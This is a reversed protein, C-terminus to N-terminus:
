DRAIRLPVAVRSGDVGVRGPERSERDILVLEFREAVREAGHLGVLAILDQHWATAASNFGEVAGPDRSALAAEVDPRAAIWQALRALEAGSADWEISRALDEAGVALREAGTKWRPGRAPALGRKAPRRAGARSERPLNAMPGAPALTGMDDLSYAPAM